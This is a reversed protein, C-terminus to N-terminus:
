TTQESNNDWSNFQDIENAVNDLSKNIKPVVTKQMVLLLAVVILVLGVVVILGDFGKHTRKTKEKCKRESRNM